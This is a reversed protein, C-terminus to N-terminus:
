KLLQPKICLPQSNVYKWWNKTTPLFDRFNEGGPKLRSLSFCLRGLFLSLRGMQGLSPDRPVPLLQPTPNLTSSLWIGGLHLLGVSIQLRVEKSM